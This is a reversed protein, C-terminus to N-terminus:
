KSVKICCVPQFDESLTKVPKQQAM